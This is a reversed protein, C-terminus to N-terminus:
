DAKAEQMEAAKRAARRENLTPAYAALTAVENSISAYQGAKMRTLQRSRFADAADIIIEGINWGPGGEHPPIVNIMEILDLVYDLAEAHTMDRMAEAHRECLKLFTEGAGEFLPTAAAVADKRLSAEVTALDAPSARLKGLTERAKVLQSQVTYEAYSAICSDVDRIASRGDSRRILWEYGKVQSAAVLFLATAALGDVVHDPTVTKADEEAKRGFESSKLFQAFRSADNREAQAMREVRANRAIISRLAFAFRDHLVRVVFTAADFSLTAATRLTPLGDGQLVVAPAAATEPTAPTTSTM